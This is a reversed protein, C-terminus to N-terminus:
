KITTKTDKHRSEYKKIADKLAEIGLVSCHVKAKPLGFGEAVDKPKLKKVKDLSKGKVLEIVRDSMAIAAACGLTEFKAEEIVAGKGGQERAGDAKGAKKDGRIKLYMKMMDGCLPNGAEGIANANKVKGVNKPKKFYKMLKKSYVM